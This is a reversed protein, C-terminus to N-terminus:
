PTQSRLRDLTERAKPSRPRLLARAVDGPTMGEYRPNEAPRSDLDDLKAKREAESPPPPAAM